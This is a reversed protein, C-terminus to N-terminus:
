FPIEGDDAAADSHDAIPTEQPAPPATAVPAPTPASPRPSKIRICPVSKGGFATTTVYLNIPQDTWEAIDDGYIAAISDANTRNLVLGRDKGVFRLVPKEERSQEMLEMQVGAMRVSVDKGDPLDAAKLYRGPFLQDVNM